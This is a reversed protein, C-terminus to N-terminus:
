KFLCDGSNIIFNYISKEVSELRDYDIVEPTDNVTHIVKRVNEEIIGIATYGKEQFSLDDSGLFSSSTNSVALNNTQFYPIIEKYLKDYNSNNLQKKNSKNFVIQFQNFSNNLVVNGGDKYGVSDININYFKDYIEKIDNVFSKSGDLGFEENNFAAFIIDYDFQNKNSERKLKDALGILLSVGSANDLAGRIVKGSKMGIHDFHASLIIANINKKGSIKGVINFAEKDTIVSPDNDKPAKYTYLHYYDTKPFPDLKLNSFINYIYEGALKNGNSGMIRGGLEESSLKEIIEKKDPINIEAEKITNIENQYDSNKNHISCGNFLFSLILLVGFIIKSKKNM